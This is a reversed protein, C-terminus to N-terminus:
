YGPNQAVTKNINLVSVPVPLLTQWQQIPNVTYNYNGYFPESALYDNITSVLTGWRLLDFFHQNEFALELRREERVAQRFAYISGLEALTYDPIGARQRVANLLALAEATPGGLENLAEAKLLMVDALRIIPFDNEADWESVMNPDIFKNCYRGGSGDVTVGTTKNFYSEKLCM